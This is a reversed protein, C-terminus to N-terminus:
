VEMEYEDDEIKESMSVIEAEIEDLRQVIFDRSYKSIREMAHQRITRRRLEKIQAIGASKLGRAM